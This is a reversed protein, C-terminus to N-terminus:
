PKAIRVSHPAANRFLEKLGDPIHIEVVGSRQFAGNGILKLSSSEGFTVRSLSHCWGFCGQCLEEVGDPIRIERAGSIVFANKGILKLSSYEGFTVRRLSMCEYFCAECLEEIRDPMVVEEVDGICSYCIRQDKSVLLGMFVDFFGKSDCIVFNKLSCRSFSSGGISSVSGPLCFYPLGTGHFAMRGILKLLSSEGFTVRSLSKCQYFCEECLEEVADPIHIERIHSTRFAMRGILKLSSSEGFTVRSIKSCFLFCVEQLEDVSDPISVLEAMRMLQRWVSDYKGRVGSPGLYVDVGEHSKNPVIEELTDSTERYSKEGNAEFEVLM